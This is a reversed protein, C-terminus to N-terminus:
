EHRRDCKQCVPPDVCENPCEGEVMEAWCWECLRGPVYGELDSPLTVDLCINMAPIEVVGVTSALDELLFQSPTRVATMAGM